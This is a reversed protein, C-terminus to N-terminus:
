DARIGVADIVKKWRAVEVRIYTRFQEPTNSVAILGNRSLLDVVQPTKLIGAIENGLKEIIKKSTKAPAAVGYWTTVDYEPLGAEAITPVTPIAESRTASTVALLKLKGSKVHPLATPVNPFMMSVRGSMVDVLGAAGGKYPVHMVDIGAMTNFSAGALHAATGNGASAYSLQGPKSKALAVLEKVSNASISPHVVLILPSTAALTIPSFDSLIRYPLKKHLSENIAHAVSVLLLTYGDPVSEATIVAGVIAGAGPRNDIVVQQGWNESLKQGIIRALVDTAGGPPFPVIFRIPRKPFMTTRDTNELNSIPRSGPKIQSFASGSVLGLMVAFLTVTRLM